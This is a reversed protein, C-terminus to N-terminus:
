CTRRSSGRSTRTRAPLAPGRVAPRGANMAFYEPHDNFYKGPPLLTAHTHVFLGGYDVHGGADEPM